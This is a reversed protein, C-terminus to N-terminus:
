LNIIKRVGKINYLSISQQKDYYRKDRLQKSHKEALGKDRCSRCYNRTRKAGIDSSLLIECILCYKGTFTVQRRKEHHIANYAQIKSRNNMRWRAQIERRKESLM